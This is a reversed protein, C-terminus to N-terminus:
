EADLLALIKKEGFIVWNLQGIAKLGLLPIKFDQIPIIKNEEGQTELNLISTIVQNNKSLIDVKALYIDFEAIGSITIAKGMGKKPLQLNKISVSDLGLYGTFGNDFIAWKTVSVGTSPNSIKLPILFANYNPDWRWLGRLNM